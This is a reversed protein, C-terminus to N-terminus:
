HNFLLFEQKRNVTIVKDADGNYITKSWEREKDEDEKEGNGENEEGWEGDTETRTPNIAGRTVYETWM